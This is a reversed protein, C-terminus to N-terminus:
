CKFKLLFCIRHATRILDRSLLLMIKFIGFYKCSGSAFGSHVFIRSNQNPRGEFNLAASIQRLFHTSPCSDDILAYHKIRAIDPRPAILGRDEGGDAYHTVNGCQIHLTHDRRIWLGSQKNVSTEAGAISFCSCIALVYRDM